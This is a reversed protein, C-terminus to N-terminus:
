ASGAAFSRHKATENLRKACRWSMGVALALSVAGTLKIASNGAIMLTLAVFSMGIGIICEAWIDRWHSLPLRKTDLWTKQRHAVRRALRVAVIIAGFGIVAAILQLLLNEGIGQATEVSEAAANRLAFLAADFATHLMVPVVWALIFLRRRRSKDDKHAGLWGSFRARVAYAGAIAGLAGHFPVSLIGRIVAVSGWQTNAGIVYFLNELAAFGLGVATGYVIGDMPEDFERSRLAIVTIMSVKLAEEPIAACFLSLELAALWRNASIPLVQLVSFEVAVAAAACLAGLVVSILVLKPPEPRSDAAVILWLLLLAPVIAAAVMAAPILDSTLMIDLKFRSGQSALRREVITVASVGPPPEAVNEPLRSIDTRVWLTVM